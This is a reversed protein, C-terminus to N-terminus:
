EGPFSVGVQRRIEDMTEMISVTEDLPMYPSETAGEAVLHALHCAEYVLADHNSPGQEPAEMATGDPRVLRVTGPGYFWMSGELEICGDTGAISATVASPAALTTTITAVAAPHDAFGTEVAAVTRDVGTPTLNGAALVRNPTGLAFSVFSVPYVGLDLMAGGARAPDHLRPARDAPLDRNHSANVAILEGLEGSELIQRVIDFRPAFRPWMAEVCAVKAARAAAVVERAEAANRTFSKEVMVHKGAAIALLAQEHHANHPSAIYIAEVDPDSLLQEYSGYSREVGFRAAFEDAHSQTRSGVAFIRQSSRQLARAMSSAIGGPALVGWRLPPADYPDPIRSTPLVSMM